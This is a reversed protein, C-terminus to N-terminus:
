KIIVLKGVQSGLKSDVRYIYIGSTVAQTNRSVLDWSIESSYGSLHPDPHDLTRILDGDLSYIRITADSPVNVFHIRRDRERLAGQGYVGEYGQDFYTTLNGHADEFSIKYPNPYVGVRVSDAYPDGRGWYEEVVDASYFPSGIVVNGVGGPQCGQPGLGRFADGYDFASVSVFYYASPLLNTLRIAYEGYQLTDHDVVTDRVAVRQILNQVEEGAANYTNEQNASHPVFYACKEVSAGSPAPEQYRYCNTLSPGSHALPDFQSDGFERRWREITLPRSSLDWRGDSPEYTYRQFDIADWAAILAYDEAGPRDRSSNRQAVYVKWGEFDRRQTINDVNLETTRGSWTVVLEGPRSVLKLDATASDPCPPPAPGSLDPCGDGTYFVTDGDVVPQYYEGRYGDGDTDVGYNDWVYGAWWANTALDQFNLKSMYAQPDSPDIRNARNTHLNGGMVFAFTFPISEGPLLRSVPGVSLLYRSDLGNAVNDAGGGTLPPKWTPGYDQAAFVQGYDIEGNAMFHYRAADGVPAGEGGTGLSRADSALRPGWDYNSFETTFWNYSIQADPVPRRLIRVGMAGRPSVVPFDPEACIDAEDDAAWAVMLTDTYRPNTPSPWITLCGTVDDEWGNATCLRANEWYVDCDMLVGLWMEEIPRESINTVELDYIIFRRTLDNASQHTVQRVQIGLPRHPRGSYDLPAGPIVITDSYTCTYTQDLRRSKQDCVGPYGPPTGSEIFAFGNFELPSVPGGSESAMACSVLTDTGVIGGVWLGGRWLYDVRSGAPFEFGPCHTIRLHNLDVQACGLASTFSGFSGDNAVSAWVDGTYTIRRDVLPVTSTNSSPYRFSVPSKGIQAASADKCFGIAVGSLLVAQWFCARLGAGIHQQGLTM